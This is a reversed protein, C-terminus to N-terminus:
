RFYGTYSEQMERILRLAEAKSKVVRVTGDPMVVNFMDGGKPQKPNDLQAPNLTVKTM